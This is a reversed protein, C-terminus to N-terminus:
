QKRQAVIMWDWPYPSQLWKPPRNFETSWPYEIKKIELVNFDVQQLNFLLEEELFHKHPVDDIDGVGQLLNKWSMKMKPISINGAFAKKDIGIQQQLIRTLLYSELSPVTMILTGKKKICKKLNKFFITRDKAHPTLIANICIGFAAPQLRLQPNSMDARKYAVNTLTPYLSAAIKLNNASIDLAMVKKFLPSLVPLWKGVACGIDIVQDTPKAYRHIAQVLLKKKDQQLVDFIEEQYTTAMKEWYQRKM